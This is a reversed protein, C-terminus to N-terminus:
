RPSFGPTLTTPFTQFCPSLQHSPSSPNATHYPQLFPQCLKPVCGLSGSSLLSRGELSDARGSIVGSSPIKPFKYQDLSAIHSRDSRSGTLLKRHSEMPQRNLGAPSTEGWGARAADKGVLMKGDRTHSESSLM